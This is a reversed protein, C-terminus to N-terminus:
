QILELSRQALNEVRSAKLAKYRRDMERLQQPMEVMRAEM